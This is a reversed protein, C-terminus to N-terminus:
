VNQIYRSLLNLRMLYIGVSALAELTNDIGFIVSSYIALAAIFLYTQTLSSLYLFYFFTLSLYPLFASFFLISFLRVISELAVTRNAIFYYLIVKSIPSIIFIIIDVPKLFYDFIHMSILSDPNQLSFYRLWDALGETSAVILASICFVYSSEKMFNDNMKERIFM